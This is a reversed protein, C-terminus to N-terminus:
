NSDNKERYYIFYLFSYWFAFFVVGALRQLMSEFLFNIFCIMLFLFLLEQKKRISHYLPIAFVLLLLSLGVFGTQTATELFQNHSNLNNELASEINREKHIRMLQEKADGIGHGFFQKEKWVYIANKWLSFRVDIEEVNVNNLDFSTKLNCKFRSNMILVSFVFFFSILTIIKYKLSFEKINKMLFLIGLFLICIIAVRSGLLILVSLFILVYSTNIFNSRFLLKNKTDDLVFILGVLIFLSYYSPHVYKLVNFYRLLGFFNTIGIREVVKLLNGSYYFIFFHFLISVLLIVLYSKIIFKRNPIIINISGFILIPVLFLSLQTEIIHFGTQFDNTYILSLINFFYFIFIFKSKSLYIKFDNGRLRIQKFQLLITLLWLGMVYPSLNYYTTHVLLLLLISYLEIRELIRKYM